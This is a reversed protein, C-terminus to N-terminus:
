TLSFQPSFYLGVGILIVLAVSIAVDKKSPIDKFVAYSEILSM